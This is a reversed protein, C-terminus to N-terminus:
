FLFKWKYKCGGWDIRRDTIETDVLVIKEVGHCIKEIELLGIDFIVGESKSCTNCSMEFRGIKTTGCEKLTCEQYEKNKQTVGAVFGTALIMVITALTIIIVIRKM